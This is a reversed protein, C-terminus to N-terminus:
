KINTISGAIISDLYESNLGIAAICIMYEDVKRVYLTNSTVFGGNYDECEAKTYTYGGITENTYADPTTYTTNSESKLLNIVYDLYEEEDYSPFVPLKEYGISIAAGENENFFCVGCETNKDEFNSYTEADVNSFGEPLAFQIDAWENIYVSGDFTGKSYEKDSVERGNNNITAVTAGIGALVILIAFVVGVILGKSKKPQYHPAPPQWVQNASSPQNCQTQGYVPQNTYLGDSIFESNGCMPCFLADDSVSSYGCVKCQKNM